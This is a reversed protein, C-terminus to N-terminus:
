TDGLNGKETASIVTIIAAFSLVDNQRQCTSAAPSGPSRVSRRSSRSNTMTVWVWEWALAWM